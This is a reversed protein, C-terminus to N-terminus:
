RKRTRSSCRRVTLSHNMNFERAPDKDFRVAVTAGELNGAEVNQRMGVNVYADVSREKCRLLLSPTVVRGPWGSISSNAWLTLVVTQSDDMRSVSKTVVWGGTAPTAKRKAPEAPPPAVLVLLLVVLPALM